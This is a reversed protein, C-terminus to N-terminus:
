YKLSFGEHRVVHPRGSDEDEDGNDVGQEQAQGDPGGQLQVVAVPPHDKQDDEDHSAGILDYVTLRCRGANGLGL